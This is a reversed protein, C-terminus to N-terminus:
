TTFYTTSVTWYLSTMTAAPISRIQSTGSQTVGTMLPATSTSGSFGTMSSEVSVSFPLGTILAGATSVGDLLYVSVTVQKGIKVYTATTAVSPSTVWGTGFGPTWTGEEYDDLTNADSQASQTAPFSIGKSVQVDGANARTTTTGVLLNGSSDIRMREAYTTSTTNAFVITSYTSADTGTAIIRSKNEAPIFDIVTSGAQLAQLQAKAVVPGNVVLKEAVGTTGINVNGSSDIRM